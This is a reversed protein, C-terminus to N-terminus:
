EPWYINRRPRNWPEYNYRPAPSCYTQRSYDTGLYAGRSYGGYGNPVARYYNSVPVWHTHCQQVSQSRVPSPAWYNQASAASGCLVMLFAMFIRVDVGTENELKM